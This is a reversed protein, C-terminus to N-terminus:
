IADFAASDILRISSGVYSLIRFREVTMPSRVFPSFSPSEFSHNAVNSRSEGARFRPCTDDTTMSRGMRCLMRSSFTPLNTVLPVSTTPHSFAPSRTSTCREVPCVTSPSMSTPESPMLERTRSTNSGELRAGTQDPYVQTAPIAYQTGASMLSTPYLTHTPGRFYKTETSTPPPRMWHYAKMFMGGPEKETALSSTSRHSLSSSNESQVPSTLCSSSEDGTSSTSCRSRYSRAGSRLQDSPRTQKSPSAACGIIGLRPCPPPMAMSSARTSPCSIAFSLTPLSGFPMGRRRRGSASRLYLLLRMRRAAATCPRERTELAKRKWYWGGSSMSHDRGGFTLFTPGLDSMVRAHWPKRCFTAKGRCNSNRKEKGPVISGSTKSTYSAPVIGPSKPEGCTADSRCDFRPGSLTPAGSFSSM